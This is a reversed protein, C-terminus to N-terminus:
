RLDIAHICFGVFQTFRQVREVVLLYLVVDEGNELAVAAYHEVHCGTVVDGTGTQAYQEIGLLHCGRFPQPYTERSDAILHLVDHIDCTKAIEELATYTCGNKHPSGNIILVKM